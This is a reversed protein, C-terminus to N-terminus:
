NVWEKYNNNEFLLCFYFIFYELTSSIKANDMRLSLCLHKNLGLCVLRDFLCIPTTSQLKRSSSSMEKPCSKIYNFEKTRRQEFPNRRNKM